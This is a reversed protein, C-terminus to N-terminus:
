RIFKARSQMAGFRMVEKSMRARAGSKMFPGTRSTPLGVSSPQSTQAAVGSPVMAILAVAPKAQPAALPVLFSQSLAVHCLLKLGAREAARQAKLDGADIQRPRNGPVHEVFDLLMEPLVRNEDEAVLVEVRVAQGREALAEPRELEMHQDIVAM